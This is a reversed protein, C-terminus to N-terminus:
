ETKELARSYVQLDIACNSDERLPFIIINSCKKWIVRDIVLAWLWGSAWQRWWSVVSELEHNQRGGEATFWPPWPWLRVTMNPCAPHSPPRSVKKRNTERTQFRLWLTGKAEAQNYYPLWIFLNSLVICSSTLSECAWNWSIASTAITDAPQVHLFHLLTYSTTVFFYNHWM